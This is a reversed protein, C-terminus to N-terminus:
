YEMSEWFTKLDEYGKQMIREEEDVIFQIDKTVVTIELKGKVNYYPNYKQILKCELDEIEKKSNGEMSIIEVSDFHKNHIHGEGGFSGLLRDKINTTSMGIYVITSKVYLKYIGIYQILSEDKLFSEKTVRIPKM